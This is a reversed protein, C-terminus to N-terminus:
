DNHHILEIVTNTLGLTMWRLEQTSVFMDQREVTSTTYLENDIYGTERRVAERLLSDRLEKAHDFLSSNSIMAEKNMSENFFIEVEKIQRKLFRQYKIILAEHIRKLRQISDEKKQVQQETEIRNLFSKIQNNIHSM